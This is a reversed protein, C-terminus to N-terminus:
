EFLGTARETLDIVDLITGRGELVRVIRNGVRLLEIEDDFAGEPELLRRPLREAYPYLDRDFVEGRVLKKEWGPPLEGGRRLKMQLGPPLAKYRHHSDDYEAGYHDIMVRRLLRERERESLQERLGDRRDDYQRRDRADYERREEYSRDHDYRRDDVRKQEAHAPKGKGNQKEDVWEPKAAMVPLALVMLALTLTRRMM